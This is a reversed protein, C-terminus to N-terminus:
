VHSSLLAVFLLEYHQEVLINIDGDFIVVAFHWYIYASILLAGNQKFFVLILLLSVM